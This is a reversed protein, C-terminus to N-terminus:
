HTALTLPILNRSVMIETPLIVAAVLRHTASLVFAMQRALYWSLRNQGVHSVVLRSCLSHHGCRHVNEAVNFSLLILDGAFAQEVEIRDMKLMVNSKVLGLDGFSAVFLGKAQYLESDARWDGLCAM